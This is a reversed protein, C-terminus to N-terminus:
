RKCGTVVIEFSRDAEELAAKHAESSVGVVFGYGCSRAIRREEEFERIQDEVVQARLFETYTDFQHTKIEWLVRAGVQLADFRKGGVLVDHGPYRNPPFQDACANHFDDEGAHPVPIPQCEPTSPNADTPLPPFIDGSRSSEPQPPRNALPEDTPRTQPQPRARERSANREYAELGEQIAVAVVVAGAVIVAGAVLEPAVFICLGVAAAEAGTSAVACQGTVDRFKVRTHDLAPYCREALVPWANSAERAACHGDDTWPYQAARQLNSLRPSERAPPRADLSACASLLLLLAICTRHLM